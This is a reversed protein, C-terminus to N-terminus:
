KNANLTTVGSLSQVIARGLAIGLPGQPQGDNVDDVGKNKGTQNNPEGNSQIVAFTFCKAPIIYTTLVHM